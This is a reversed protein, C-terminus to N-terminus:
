STKSARNLTDMSFFNDRGRSAGMTRGNIMM